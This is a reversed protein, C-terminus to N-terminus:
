LFIKNHTLKMNPIINGIIDFDFSLREQCVDPCVRTHLLIDVFATSETAAQTLGFIDSSAKIKLMRIYRRRALLFHPMPMPLQSAQLPVDSRELRCVSIGSFLQKEGV